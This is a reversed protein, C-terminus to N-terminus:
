GCRTARGCDNWSPSSRATSTPADSAWCWSSFPDSQWTLRRENRCLNLHGTLPCPRSRDRARCRATRSSTTTTLASSCPATKTRLLSRSSYAGARLGIVVPGDGLRKIQDSSESREGELRDVPVLENRLLLPGKTWVLVDRVWRGYGRRWKPGLRDLEGDEVRIQGRFAGPQRKVWRKRTQMAGLLLVIVILDVGLVALLAALM